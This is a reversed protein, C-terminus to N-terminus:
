AACCFNVSCQWDVTIFFYLMSFLCVFLIGLQFRNPFKPTKLVLQGSSRIQRRYYINYSGVERDEALLNAKSRAPSHVWSPKLLMLLSLVQKSTEKAM